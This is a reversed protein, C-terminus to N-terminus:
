AIRGDNLPTPSNLLFQTNFDHRMRYISENLIPPILPLVVIGDDSGEEHVVADIVLSVELLSLLRQKVTLHFQMVVNLGCHMM